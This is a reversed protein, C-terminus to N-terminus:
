TMRQLENIVMTVLEGSQYKSHSLKEVSTQIINWLMGVSFFGKEKMKIVNSLITLNNALSMDSWTHYRLEKVGAESAALLQILAKVEPNGNFAGCGWMGSAVVTANEEKVVGNFGILAKYLERRTSIDDQFQEVATQDPFRLADIALWGCINPKTCSSASGNFQFSSLYGSHVHFHRAGIIFIAENDKMEESSSKRLWRSGM